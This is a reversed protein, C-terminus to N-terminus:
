RTFNLIYVLFVFFMFNIFFEFLELVIFSKCYVINSCSQFGVPAIHLMNIFNWCTWVVVYYGEILM